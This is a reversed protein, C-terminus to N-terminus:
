APLLFDGRNEIADVILRVTPDALLEEVTTFNFARVESPRAEYLVPFPLQYREFLLYAYRVALTRLREPDARDSSWNALLDFYDERSEVDITFGRGRFHTRSVVACPVGLLQMEMGVTSTHVLGLDAVPYISWSNVKEQPEIVRVNEPLAPFRDRILSAFPQRTGIVVEAPHIKVVLQKDPRDAFWAITEMVWAVPNAFAIERQASAADWLVNTYLVFTQKGPDLRLRERTRVVDEEEGFNYIMRDQSHSRRSGLYANISEEQEPTLPTERVREWEAAVDWWDAGTTWNFKRTLRRKGPGYTLVPIGAANLAERAPGWTCYIGHSMIVRDPKILALRRGAAASRAAAEGLMRGREGADALGDLVGVRYHKLLAAEVIEPFADGSASDAAALESLRLIEFGLADVFQRGFGWCKACLRDWDQEQGWKKNECIPLAKDCLVFRVRHGRGRLALALAAETAVEFTHGGLMTLFVVDLPASSAAEGNGHRFRRAQAILTERGLRRGLDPWTVGVRAGIAAAAPVGTLRIRDKWRAGTKPNSSRHESM